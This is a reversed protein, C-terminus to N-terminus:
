CVLNVLYANAADLMAQCDEGEGINFYTLAANIAERAKTSDTCLENNDDCSCGGNVIVQVQSINYFQQSMYNVQLNYTTGSNVITLYFSLYKDATINYTATLTSGMNITTLTTGAADKIVLVRSTVSSMGSSTDQFTLIKADSSQSVSGSIVAM